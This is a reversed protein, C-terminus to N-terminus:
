DTPEKQAEALIAKLAAGDRRAAAIAVARVFRSARAPGAADHILDREEPTLRFAFVVLEESARARPM